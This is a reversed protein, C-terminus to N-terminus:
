RGRNECLAVLRVADKDLSGKIAILAMPVRNPLCDFAFLPRKSGDPFSNEGTGM